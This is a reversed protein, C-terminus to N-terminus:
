VPLCAYVSIHSNDSFKYIKNYKKKNIILKLQNIYIKIKNLKGPYFIQKASKGKGCELNM